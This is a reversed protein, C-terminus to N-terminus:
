DSQSDVFAAFLIMVIFVGTVIKFFWTDIFVPFLYGALWTLAVTIYVITNFNWFNRWYDRWFNGRECSRCSDNVWRNTRWPMVSTITTKASFDALPKTTQCQHCTKSPTGTM